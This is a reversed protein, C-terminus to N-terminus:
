KINKLDIGEFLRTMHDSNRKKLGPKKVRNVMKANDSGKWNM